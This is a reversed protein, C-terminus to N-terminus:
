RRAGRRRMGREGLLERLQEREAAWQDRAEDFIEPVAGWSSWRGLLRQEETSAPREQAELRALVRLARLNAEV